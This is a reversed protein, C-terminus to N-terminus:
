RAWYAAARWEQRTFGRESLLKRAASVESKEGAFWVLRGTQPAQLSDLAELLTDGRSRSLWRVAVGEPRRLDQIDDEDGILITAIGATEAPAAELIRAIAPLATEDGLLALWDARPFWEGGPGMLAIRDGPRVTRCWETVRGGDHIFVDFELTGAQPDVSRVTYVPRHWAEAGGPWVTRGSEAISPWEGTHEQPGFLLRFHLGDRSFRELDPDSLRVRYYSPSLRVCRDVTAVSMNGPRSGADTRSWHLAESAGIEGLAHDVVEQLVYLKARDAAAVTLRVGAGDSTLVIEGYPSTVTLSDATREAPLEYQLAEQYFLSIAKDPSLNLQTSTQVPM